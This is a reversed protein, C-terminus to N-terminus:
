PVFAGFIAIGFYKNIIDVAREPIRDAYMDCQNLFELDESPISLSSDYEWTVSASLDGYEFQYIKPTFVEFGMDLLMPVEFDRLTTHNLLWLIRRSM